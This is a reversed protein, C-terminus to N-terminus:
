QFKLTKISKEFIKDYYKWQSDPSQFYGYFLNDDDAAAVEYSEFAISKADVKRFTRYVKAYFGDIQKIHQSGVFYELYGETNKGNSNSWFDVLEHSGSVQYLANMNRNMVLNVSALIDASKGDWKNPSIMIETRDLSKEVEYFYWDNPLEITIAKDSSTFKKWKIKDFPTFKVGAMKELTERDKKADADRGIKDYSLARNNIAKDNRPNLRIAESYADIAKRWQESIFHCNGLEFYVDSRKFGVDIAHKFDLIASEYDKQKQYLQGRQYYISPNQPSLRIADTFDSIAQSINGLDSNATARNLYAEAFNPDLIIARDFDVISEEVQGVYGYALGRSNFADAYKGNIQISKTFYDLSNEVDELMLFSMGIYYPALYNNNDIEAVRKLETIAKKYNKSKYYGIGKEFNQSFLQATLILFISIFRM